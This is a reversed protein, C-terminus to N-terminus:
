SSIIKQKILIDLFDNTCNYCPSAYYPKIFYLDDKKYLNVSVYLEPYDELFCEFTAIKYNDSLSNEEFVSKNYCNEFKFKIDSDNIVFTQNEYCWNKQPFYLDDMLHFEKIIYDPFIQKNGYFNVEKTFQTSDILFPKEKYYFTQRLYRQEYYKKNKYIIISCDDEFIMNVSKNKTYLFRWLSSGSPIIYAMYIFILFFIFVAVVTCAIVRVCREAISVPKASKKM